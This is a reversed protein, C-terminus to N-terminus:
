FRDDLFYWQDAHARIIPEILSNLYVIDDLVGAREGVKDALSFIESVHLEFRSKHLRVCHCIVVEARSSRAFRSVLGLNGGERPPRGFLPAMTEGGRADDGFIAFPRNDRLLRLAERVGRPSPDLLTVGLEARVKQVIANHVAPEPPLYFSNIPFGLHALATPFAEWNGTHLMIVVLPRKVLLGSRIVEADYSVRNEGIFRHLLSFEAYVRGVNDLFRQVGADVEEESWEPKLRRLNHRAGTLIHPLNRRVNRRVLLSGLDSAADIPARRLVHHLGLHWYDELRERFGERVLENTSM